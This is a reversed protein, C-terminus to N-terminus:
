TALATSAAKSAGQAAFYKAALGVGVQLAAGIAVATAAKRMPAPLPARVRELARTEGSTRMLAGGQLAALYMGCKRCYNDSPAYEAACDPCPQAEMPECYVRWRRSNRGDGVARTNYPSSANQLTM